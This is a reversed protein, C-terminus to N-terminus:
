ATCPVRGRAAHIEDTQWTGWVHDNPFRSEGAHYLTPKRTAFLRAGRARAARSFEWDESKAQAEWDGTKNRIIRNVTQFTLPGPDTWFPRRLDCVWLGTNLLLEGGVDGDSFTEPLAYVESLTLRRPLWPDDTEIATSTLGHETKIPIVTSLIDAGTLAMEALLIDVWGQAPAVDDHIMGFHTVGQAVLNLATAWLRNFGHDLVTSITHTRVVECAGSTPWLFYGQGAGFGHQEGRRPMGLLVVPKGAARLAGPQVVALSDTEGLLEAGAFLLQNVAVTVDPDQTTNYDHFAILGGPALLRLAHAIDKKVASRSHDGDIFVLDFSKAELAPAVEETIGVLLRVKAAVGYREVNGRFVEDTDGPTPTARGDCPDICVVSEATQAMCITSLGYYSGIELVRKGAALDALRRGEAESLWGAVDRPFVWDPKM